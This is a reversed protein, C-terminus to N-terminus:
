WSFAASAGAPVAGARQAREAAKGARIVRQFPVANRMRVSPVGLDGGWATLPRRPAAPRGCRRCLWPEGNSRNHLLDTFGSRESWPCLAIIRGMVGRAAM